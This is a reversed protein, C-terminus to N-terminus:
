DIQEVLVRPLQESPTFPFDSPPSTTLWELFQDLQRGIDGCRSLVDNSEWLDDPKVFLERRDPSRRYSWAPTRLATEDGHQSVAFGLHAPNLHTGPALLNFNALEALLPHLQLTDPLSDDLGYWHSLARYLQFPQVIDLHRSCRQREPWRILLPVRTSEGYLRTDDLGMRRHEGLPYGRHSTLVALANKWTPSEDLFRLLVGLCEDLVRVQAAYAMSHPFLEDPDVQEAFSGAAPAPDTSPEPDEEDHLEDRYVQPADWASSLGTAHVWVFAPQNLSELCSLAAVVSHFLGTSELSDAQQREPEPLPILEDFEYAAFHEAASPSDTIAVSFVDRGALGKTLPVGQHLGPLAVHQGCLIAKLFNATDLNEAIANEFLLSDAAWDNAWPTELWTNGYPGLFSAGLGEVTLLLANDNKM